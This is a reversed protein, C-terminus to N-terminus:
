LFSQAIIELTVGQLKPGCALTSVFSMWFAM